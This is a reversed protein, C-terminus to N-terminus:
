NRGERGNVKMKKWVRERSLERILHGFFILLELVNEEETKIYVYICVGLMCM